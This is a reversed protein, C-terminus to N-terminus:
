WPSPPRSICLMPGSLPTWCVVQGVLGAVPIISHTPLDDYIGNAVMLDRYNLTTAKMAVRVDMSRLQQDRTEGVRLGDIGAGPRLEYRRM